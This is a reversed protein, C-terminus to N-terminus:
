EFEFVNYRDITITNSISRGSGLFFILYSFNPKKRESINVMEVILDSIFKVLQGM